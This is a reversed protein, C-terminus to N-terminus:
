YVSGAFNEIANLVSSAEVGSISDTGEIAPIIVMNDSLPYFKATNDPMGGYIAVLPKNFASAVHVAATDPTLIIECIKIMSVLDHFNRTRYLRVSPIASCIEQAIKAESPASTIVLSFKQADLRSVVDIWKETQWM